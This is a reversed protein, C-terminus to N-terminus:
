FPMFFNLLMLIDEPLAGNELIVDNTFSFGKESIATLLCVNSNSCRKRISSEEQVSCCLRRKVSRYGVVTIEPLVKIYVKRSTVARAEALLVRGDVCVTACRDLARDDLVCSFPVSMTLSRLGVVEESTYLITVKVSGSITCRDENLLKERIILRGVVDVIRTIDPCYEPIATELSEEHASTIGATSEYCFIDEFQLGLEM